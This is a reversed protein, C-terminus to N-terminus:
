HGLGAIWDVHIPCHSAVVTDRGAFVISAEDISMPSEYGTQTISLDGQPVIIM